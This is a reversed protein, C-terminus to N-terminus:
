LVDYRGLIERRWLQRRRHLCDLCPSFLCLTPGFGVSDHRRDHSKVNCPTPIRRACCAEGVSRECTTRVLAVYTCSEWQNPPYVDNVMKPVLPMGKPVFEVEQVIQPNAVKRGKPPVYFTSVLASCDHVQGGSPLMAAIYHVVTHDAGYERELRDVLVDGRLYCWGPNAPDICLDAYLCDEATVGPLMRAKYDEERAIALSRQSPDVFVGPHGYFVGVVDLGARVERLM